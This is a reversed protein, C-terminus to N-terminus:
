GSLSLVILAAEGSNLLFCRDGDCAAVWYRNRKGDTPTKHLYTTGNINSEIRDCFGGDVRCPASPSFFDNHYIAYYEAGDVNEWTVRVGLGERQM